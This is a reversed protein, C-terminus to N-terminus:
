GSEANDETNDDASQMKMLLFHNVDVDDTYMEEDQVTEDNSNKTNRKRKKPPTSSSDSRRNSNWRRKNLLMKIEPATKVFGTHTQIHSSIFAIKSPNLNASSITKLEEPTFLFGALETIYKNMDDPMIFRGLLMEQESSLTYAQNTSRVPNPPINTIDCKCYAFRDQLVLNRALLADAKRELKEARVELKKIIANKREVRLKMRENDNPHKREEYDSDSDQDSSASWEEVAAAPQINEKSKSPKKTITAPTPATKNSNDSLQTVEAVVQDSSASREEVAAAPEINEKSKSPKKTITAPTPATKNSNDSLQTVEAVVQDSSASREEVAAAPEINEKSKSPKKTITAPTPATKNSNDSLQTVAAVTVEAVVQDSSASLEEVRTVAAVSADSVHKKPQRVTSKGEAATEKSLAAIIYASNTTKAISENVKDQKKMRKKRILITREFEVESKETSMKKPPM